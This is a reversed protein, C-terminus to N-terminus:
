VLWNVGDVVLAVRHDVPLPALEDTDTPFEETFEVNVGILKVTPVVITFVVAIASVPANWAFPLVPDEPWSSVDVQYERQYEERSVLQGASRRVRFEEFALPAVFAPQAFAEPFRRAYEGLAVPQGRNWRHELDVRILEGLVGLYAPHGAVPVFDEIRADGADAMQDEFREVIEDLDFIEPNMLQGSM